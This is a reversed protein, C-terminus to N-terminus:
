AQGIFVQHSLKHGNYGDMFAPGARPGWGPLDPGEVSNSAYTKLLDLIFVWMEM